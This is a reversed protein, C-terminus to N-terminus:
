FLCGYDVVQHQNEHKHNSDRSEHPRTDATSFCLAISRSVDNQARSPDEVHSNGHEDCSNHFLLDYLVCGNGVFIVCRRDHLSNYQKTGVSFTHSCEYHWVTLFFASFLRGSM